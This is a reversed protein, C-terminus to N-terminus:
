TLGLKAQRDYMVIAGTVALNLSRPTEMMVHQLHVTKTHGALYEAPIEKNLNEFYEDIMRLDETTFGTAESGMLYTANNPHEYSGLTKANKLMEIIVLTTKAPLHNLFEELTRYYLVTIKDFGDQTDKQHSFKNINDKYKDRIVGGIIFVTNAGLNQASRILCAINGRIKPNLMGINFSM